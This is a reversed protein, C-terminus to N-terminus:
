SVPITTNTNVMLASHGPTSICHGSHSTVLPHQNSTLFTLAAPFLGGKAMVATGHPHQAPLAVMWKSATPENGPSLQQCLWSFVLCSAWGSTPLLALWSGATAVPATCHHPLQQPDAPTM